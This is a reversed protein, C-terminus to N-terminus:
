GEGRRQGEEVEAHEEVEEGQQQGKENLDAELIAGAVLLVSIRLNITITVDYLQSRKMLWVYM